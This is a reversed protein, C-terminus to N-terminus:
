DESSCLSCGICGYLGLLGGQQRERGGEPEEERVEGEHGGERDGTGQREGGARVPTGLVKVKTHVM